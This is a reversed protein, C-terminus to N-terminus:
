ETQEKQPAVIYHAGWPYPTVPSQGGRATGGPTDDLEFVVVDRIGRRALEWGASLGAVGAGVIAVTHERWTRVEPAAGPRDIGRPLVGAGDAFGDPDGGGAIQSRWDRVVGHGRAMGTEVLAGPPLGPRGRHCGLAAFPAGLLLAVFERRSPMVRRAGRAESM